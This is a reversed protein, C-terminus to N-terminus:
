PTTNPLRPFVELTLNDGPTNNRMNRQTKHYVIHDIATRLLNNKAEPDPATYYSDLITTIQPLLAARPDPAPIQDLANLASDVQAIQAQVEARRRRFEDVSYVGQELLDYHRTLQNSLADRQVILQRRAAVSAASDPASQPEQPAVTFEDRWASLIDLLSDEVATLYASATACYPTPCYLFAGRSSDKRQMTHGCVPCIVLGGLPNAFPSMENKPRKAHGSLMAQVRDYVARDVIAEHRGQALIANDSLPRSKVRAGNEIRVSEQRQNWQVMGVYVPSKLMVKVASPTWPNGLDTRLGMENLRNAISNAGVTRGDMGYAYWSFVSRVIEAKDPVPRLTWGKRDTLRVREYGYPARPSIWCGDMVSAIRGRQMRKKIMKYERRAFFLKIEMFEADSEDAPNFIKDPTIILTNSYYFSQMIVGQDISDGRGLRDVDMALVGDWRGANVDELLRQVEPRDAITDGSVVERYTRAVRIGLREALEALAQAHRALTDGHGLAELEMDKRSKRLYVCYLGAPNLTSGMDISGKM